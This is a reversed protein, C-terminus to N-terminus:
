GRGFHQCRQALDCFALAALELRHEIVGQAVVDVPLLLLAGAAVHHRRERGTQILEVAKVAFQSPLGHRM